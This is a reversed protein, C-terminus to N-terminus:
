NLEELIVQSILEQDASELDYFLPLCIASNAIKEAVPCPQYNIFPLQNLAPYFYRRPFINIGNLRKVVKLLIEESRFIVPFYAHNYEIDPSVKLLQIDSDKLLTWYYKWQKKRRGIIEDIYKLNCLGMAAHFESNKANIGVSFYEDGIHGFHSMLSLQAFLIDDKTILCGGEGTHFLKTAHFSCTSVDGYDLLSRNNITTGFAHAADFILKINNEKAIRELLDVECPYGYVHTALIAQTRPTIAKEVKRADICFNENNIDVFIPKCNEWLIANTTAVYSFPTTIVEKSINLAKIAMQLVVTGNSCFKLNKVGLYYTLKRELELSLEGNNTIWVKNWARKLMTSYEEFPPLFTKTVNIM